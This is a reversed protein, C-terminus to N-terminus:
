HKVPMLRRPHQEMNRDHWLRLVPGLRQKSSARTEDPFAIHGSIIWPVIGASRFQSSASPGHYDDGHFACQLGCYKPGNCPSQLSFWIRLLPGHLFIRLHSLLAASDHIVTLRPQHHSAPALRPPPDGSVQSQSRWSLWLHVPSRRWLAAVERM